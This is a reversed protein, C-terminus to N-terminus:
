NCSETESKRSRDANFGQVVARREQLVVEWVDRVLRERSHLEYKSLSLDVRVCVEGVEGQQTARVEIAFLGLLFRALQRVVGVESRYLAQVCEGQLHGLQRARALHAPPQITERPRSLDSM